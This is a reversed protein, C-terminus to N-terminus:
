GYYQYGKEKLSNVLRTHLNRFWYNRIESLAILDADSRVTEDIIVDYGGKVETDKQWINFQLVKLQKM